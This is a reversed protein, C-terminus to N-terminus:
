PNEKKPTAVEVNSVWIEDDGSDYYGPWSGTIHGNWKFWVIGDEVYWDVPLGLRQMTRGLRTISIQELPIYSPPQPM